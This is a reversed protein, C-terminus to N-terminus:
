RYLHLKLFFKLFPFQSLSCGVVGGGDERVTGRGECPASLYQIMKRAQKHMLNRKPESESTPRIHFVGRRRLVIEFMGIFGFKVKERKQLKQPDYPVKKLFNGVYGIVEGVFGIQLIVICWLLLGGCLFSQPPCNNTM